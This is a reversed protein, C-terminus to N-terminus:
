KYGEETLFNRLQKLARNRRVTISQRSVGMRKSIERDTMGLFYSLLIVEQNKPQLQSIAKALVDGIVIVPLGGIEFLHERIFYQDEWSLQELEKPSLSGLSQERMRQRVRENHIRRAENKLVKTCFGGFQNQVRKEYANNM